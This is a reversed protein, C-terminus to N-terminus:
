PAAHGGVPRCSAANGPSLRGRRSRVSRTKSSEAAQLRPLVSQDLHRIRTTDLSSLQTAIGQQDICPATMWVVSAGTSSLTRVATRYERLLFNDLAPDGFSTFRQAGPLKRDQTDAISSLVVVLDPRIRALLHPWARVAARCRARQDGIGFTPLEGDTAVGCGEVARNWVIARRHEAAWRDLGYGLSLAQSDGVVLVKPLDALVRRRHREADALMTTAAQQAYAEPALGPTSPLESMGDVDSREAQLRLMAQHFPRFFGSGGGTAAPLDAWVFPAGRAALLDFGAGLAATITETDRTGAGAALDAPSTGNWQDALVLVADPDDRRVIPPWEHAWNSCTRGHATGVLPGTCRFPAAVQLRTGNRAAAVRLPRLLPDDQSRPIVLLDLVGDDARAAAASAPNQRLAAFPDAASRNVFVVGAAVVTVAALPALTWRIWRPFRALAGHIIPQEVYRYSAIAVAFTVGVRLALLSWGSLGTRSATLWLYIPWHYLYLGYSIRGIPPLPWASLVRRVPGVDALIALIAACTLLSFALFGGRYLAVDVLSATAAWWLLAALGVCGFAALLRRVTRPFDRGTRALVAALAGGILLEGIRTDTGYYLRDLGAGGHSLVTMWVTSVVAAAGLLAAVLLPSCRRRALLLLGIPLLLYAQEEIALSWFHQAPSPASFLDLYSTGSLIFHWNATWTAAAFVDGPLADAQPRVAVTAGFLVVGALAIFAAPMLRRARRSWFSRLGAGGVVPNRLLVGTILFGSLTFFLTVGLFGGRAWSVEGHYLLILIVAVARLGDLGEYHRGLATSARDEGVDAAVHRGEGSAGHEVTTVAGAGWRRRVAAGIARVGPVCRRVGAGPPGPAGESVM